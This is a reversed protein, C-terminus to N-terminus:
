TLMVLNFVAFGVFRVSDATFRLCLCNNNLSKILSEYNFGVVGPTVSLAFKRSLLGLNVDYSSYIRPIPGTQRILGRKNM